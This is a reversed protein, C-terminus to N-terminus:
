HAQPVETGALVTPRSAMCRRSSTAAEVVGVAGAQVLLRQPAGPAATWAASQLRWPWPSGEDTERARASEYGALMCSAM